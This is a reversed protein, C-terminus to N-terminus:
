ELCLHQPTADNFTQGTFHGTGGYIEPLESAPIFEQLKTYDSNLFRVKDLTREDAFGKCFNYIGKIAYPTNVVFLRKCVEPLYLNATKMLEQYLALDVNTRLSFGKCDVVVNTFGRESRDMIQQHIIEAFHELARHNTNKVLFRSYNVYMVPDGETDVGHFHVMGFRLVELCATPLNSNLESRWLYYGKLQKIADDTIFKSGKLFRRLYVEKETPFWRQMENIQNAFPDVENICDATMILASPDDCDDVLRTSQCLLRCKYMATYPRKLYFLLSSLICSTALLIYPWGFLSSPISSGYLNVNTIAIALVVMTLPVVIWYNVPLYKSSTDIDRLSFRGTVTEYELDFDLEVTNVPIHSHRQIAKVIPKKTGLNDDSLEILFLLGCSMWVHICEGDYIDVDVPFGWNPVPVVFRDGVPSDFDKRDSSGISIADIHSSILSDTDLCPKMRLDNTEVGKAMFKCKKNRRAAHSSVRATNEIINAIWDDKEKHTAACLQITADNVMFEFLADSYYPEREETPMDRTQPLTSTTKTDTVISQLRRIEQLQVIGVSERFLHEVDFEDPYPSPIFWRFSWTTLVCMYEAWVGNNSRLNLIGVMKIQRRINRIDIQSGLCMTFAPDNEAGRMQNFEVYKLANADKKQQRDYLVTTFRKTKLLYRRYSDKEGIPASSTQREEDNSSSRLNSLTLKGAAGKVNETVGKIASSGFDAFSKRKSQGDKTLPLRKRIANRKKGPSVPCSIKENDTISDKTEPLNEM